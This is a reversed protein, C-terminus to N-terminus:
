RVIREHLLWGDGWWLAEEKIEVAIPEHPIEGRQAADHFGQLFRHAGDPGDPWQMANLIVFSAGRLPLDDNPKLDPDVVQWFCTSSYTGKTVFPNDDISVSIRHWHDRGSLVRAFPDASLLSDGEGEVRLMACRLPLYESRSRLETLRHRCEGLHSILQQNTM